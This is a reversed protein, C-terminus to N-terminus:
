ELRVKFLLLYISRGIGYFVIISNLAIFGFVNNFFLSNYLSPDFIENFNLTGINILLFSQPEYLIGILSLIFLLTSLPFLIKRRYSLIMFIMGIASIILCIFALYDFKFYITRTLSEIIQYDGEIILGRYVTVNGGMIAVHGSLFTTLGAHSSGINVNFAKAEIIFLALVACIYTFVIGISIFLRTYKRKM